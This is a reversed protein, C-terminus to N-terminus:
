QIAVRSITQCQDNVPQFGDNSPDLSLEQFPGSPTGKFPISSGWLHLISEEFSLQLKFTMLSNHSHWCAQM